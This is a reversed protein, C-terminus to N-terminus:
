QVRRRSALTGAVFFLGCYAFLFPLSIGLPKGTLSHTLGLNAMGTPVLKIVSQFSPPTFEAPFFGGGLIALFIMSISSIAGVARVSNSLSFVLGNWGAVFLALALTILSAAALGHTPIRWIIGGLIGSIMGVVYVFSASYLRQQIAVSWPSLPATVFRRTVQNNRDRLFRHELHLSVSLLGFMILGPFFMSALNFDAADADDKTEVVTVNINRVAALGSTQGSRDFALRSIDAVQDSTPVDDIANIRQMPEAFQGLLGNSIALMSGVVGEAVQPGISHRPNTYLTLRQPTQQLVGDGFGDPIVLAASASETKFLKEVAAMDTADVVTMFSAVQDQRFAGKVLQSVMSSDQDVIAMTTKPPNSSDNGVVMTYITMFVFPISMWILISGPRRLTRQWYMRFLHM